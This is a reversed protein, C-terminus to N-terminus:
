ARDAEEPKAELGWAAWGARLPPRAFLELYPGPSMSEVVDYFLAPKRSHAERPAFIVNPVDHRLFSLRGRTAVVVQETCNRFSRGMGIRLGTGDNKTKVWTILTKPEFGWKEAVRWAEAVFTNTTWLYLHANDPLELTGNLELGFLLVKIEHMTM